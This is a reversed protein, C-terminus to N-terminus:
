LGALRSKISTPPTLLEYRLTRGNDYQSQLALWEGQQSYWLDLNLKKAKLQYRQTAVPQGQILLLESTPETVEVDMYDGDQTNLLQTAQLFEQNWYAFSMVCDPLIASGKSGDVKFGDANQEGAVAYDKGNADTSSEIRSLCGDQWVEENRHQYRYLTVFMLKYEFEAVSSLVQQDGQQHVRFEHFGIAKADVYVQFRWVQDEDQPTQQSWAPTILMSGFLLLLLAPKFVDM